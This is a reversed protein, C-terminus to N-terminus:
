TKFNKCSGFDDQCSPCVCLYPSANFSSQNAKFCMAQFISSGDITKFSKLRRRTTEIELSEEPIEKIIYSPNQRDDFKSKLFQVLAKNGLFNGRFIGMTCMEVTKPKMQKIQEWM